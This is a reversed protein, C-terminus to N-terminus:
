APRAFWLQSQTVFAAFDERWVQVDEEYQALDVTAYDQDQQQQAAEFHEVAAQYAAVETEFYLSRKLCTACCRRVSPYQSQYEIEDSGCSLEPCEM